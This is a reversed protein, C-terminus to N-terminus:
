VGARDLRRDRWIQRVRRGAATVVLAGPCHRPRRRAPGGGPGSRSLRGWVELDRPHPGEADDGGAKQQTETRTIVAPSAACNAGIAFRRRLWERGDHVVHRAPGTRAPPLPDSGDWDIANGYVLVVDPREHFLDAARRLAGPTLADDASMLLTYDGTPFDIVGETFTAIHGKNEAHEVVEVRPDAAALERAVDASGDGSADDIIRVRVEVGEQDLVSRVATPLM